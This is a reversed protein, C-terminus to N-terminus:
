SNQIKEFTELLEGRSYLPDSLNVSLKLGQRLVHAAFNVFFPDPNKMAEIFIPKLVKVASDLDIKQLIFAFCSLTIKDLELGNKEIERSIISFTEPGGKILSNVTLDKKFAKMLSNPGSAYIAEDINEPNKIKEINKHIEEM